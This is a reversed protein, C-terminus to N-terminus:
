NGPKQDPPKRSEGDEPKDDKEDLAKKFSKIGQGLGSMIEPIKNAGFVVLLIVLILILETPGLM